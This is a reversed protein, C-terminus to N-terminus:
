FEYNFIRIDKEYLEAVKNKTLETYYERYDEKRNSANKKKISADINLRAMVESLDTEFNEFRGLYDIHNLDILRSQLRLHQDGFELNVNSRVSDIFSEFDQEEDSFEFKNRRIVKDHWCSVLRDWPNRVFAFKYHKQYKNVPYYISYPHEAALEINAQEFLDLITRTGVKGVRFWVFKKQDSVTLNYRIDSPYFATKVIYAAISQYRLSASTLEKSFKVKQNARQGKRNNEQIKTKITPKLLSPASFKERTTSFVSATVPYGTNEPVSLINFYDMLDQTIPAFDAHKQAEQFRLSSSEKRLKRRVLDNSEHHGLLHVASRKPYDLLEYGKKQFYRRVRGHRALVMLFESDIQKFLEDQSSKEDLTNPINEELLSYRLINGTGCFSNKAYFPSILNGTLKYGHTMIWGNEEPNANVYAAIDNGVYDDADFILVYDPAHKRAAMIGILQKSGRNLAYNAMLKIEPASMYRPTDANRSDLGIMRRAWSVAKEGVDVPKKKKDRSWQEWWKPNDIRPSLNGLQTFREIVDDNHSPFDVEVFDTYQNILGGNHFLPLKQDCVVVVRFDINTQNCVSYLTNNLLRWVDEYSESNDPHKVATVFVLM